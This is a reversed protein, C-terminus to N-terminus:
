GLRTICPVPRESNAFLLNGSKGNKLGNQSLKGYVYLLPGLAKKNKEKKSFTYPVVGLVPLLPLEEGSVGWVLPKLLCSRIVRLVPFYAFAM